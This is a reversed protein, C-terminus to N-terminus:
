QWHGEFQTYHFHRLLGAVGVLTQICSSWALGMLPLHPMAPISLYRLWSLAVSTVASKTKKGDKRMFCKDM